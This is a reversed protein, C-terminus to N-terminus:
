FAHQVGVWFQWPTAANITKAADFRLMTREILGFWAVDLRLGGGFAHAIPGLEHGDLYANGVDYFAAAYINRIGAVHDCCDWTVSKVLPVRWELSALWLLSGQRENVDFGRFM